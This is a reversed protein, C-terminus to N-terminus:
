RSVPALSLAPRQLALRLFELVAADAKEGQKDGWGSGFAHGAQDIALLEVRAGAQKLEAALRESQEFPVQSDATGHILL